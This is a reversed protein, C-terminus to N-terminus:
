AGVAGAGAAAAAMTAMAELVAALKREQRERDAAPATAPLAFCPGFVAAMDPAALAGLAVLRGVHTMFAAWLEPVGAGAQRQAKRLKDLGVAGVLAPLPVLETARARLLSKIGDALATASLGAFAATVDCNSDYKVGDSSGSGGSGSLFGQVAMVAAVARDSGGGSSGDGDEEWSAYLSDDIDGREIVAEVGAAMATLAAVRGAAGLNQWAADAAVRSMGLALSPASRPSLLAAPQVAAPSMQAAPPSGASSMGGRAISTAATEAPPPVAASAPVAATATVDEAPSLPPPLRVQVPSGTFRADDQDMRRSSPAPLVPPPSAPAEDPAARHAGIRFGGDDDRDGDSDESSTGCRYQQRSPVAAAAPFPRPLSAPAPVTASGAAPVPAAAAAAESTFKQSLWEAHARVSDDLAAHADFADVFDFSPAADTTGRAAAAGAAATTGTAADATAPGKQAVLLGRLAEQLAPTAPTPALAANRRVDRANRAAEAHILRDVGRAEKLRRDRLLQRETDESQQQMQVVTLEHRKGDVVARVAMEKEFAERAAARRSAAEVRASELRHLEEVESRLQARWLGGGGRGGSHWGCCGGAALDGIGGVAAVTSATLVAMASQRLLRWRVLPLCTLTAHAPPVS